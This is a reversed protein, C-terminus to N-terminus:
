TPSPPANAATPIVWATGARQYHILEAVPMPPDDAIESMGIDCFRAGAAREIEQLLPLEHEYAARTNVPGNHTACARSPPRPPRSDISPRSMSRQPQVEVDFIIVRSSDTESM